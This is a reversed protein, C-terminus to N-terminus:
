PYSRRPTLLGCLTIMTVAALTPAAGRATDQARHGARPAARRGGASGSPSARPPRRRTSAALHVGGAYSVQYTFTGTVPPTDAIGFSGDAAMTVDPLGTGSPNAPDVRTM